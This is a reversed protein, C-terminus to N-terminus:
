ELVRKRQEQSSRHDVQYDLWIPFLKAKLVKRRNWKLYIFQWVTKFAFNNRSSCCSYTDLSITGLLTPNLKAKSNNQGATPKPKLLANLLTRGDTKTEVARLPSSRSPPNDRPPQRTSWSPPFLVLPIHPRGQNSVSHTTPFSLLFSPHYRGQGQISDGNIGLSGSFTTSRIDNLMYESCHMHSGIFTM